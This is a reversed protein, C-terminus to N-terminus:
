LPSRLYTHVVSSFARVVSAREKVRICRFRHDPSVQCPFHLQTFCTRKSATPGVMISGRAQGSLPVACGFREPASCGLARGFPEGHSDHGPMAPVRRLSSTLVPPGAQKLATWWWRDQLVPLLAAVWPAFTLGSGRGSPDPPPPPSRSRESSSSAM